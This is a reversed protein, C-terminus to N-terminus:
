KAPRVGLAYHWERILTAFETLEYADPRIFAIPQSQDGSNVPGAQDYVLTNENSFYNSFPKPIEAFILERNEPAQWGESITPLVPLNQAQEVLKRRALGAEQDGKALEAYWLALSACLEGTSILGADWGQLAQGFIQPLQAPSLRKVGLSSLFRQIRKYDFELPDDPSRETTNMERDSDYGYPDVEYSSSSYDSRNSDYGYSDATPAAELSTKTSAYVEELQLVPYYIDQGPYRFVRRFILVGDQGLPTWVVQNPPMYLGNGVPVFAKATLKGDLVERFARGFNDNYYGYDLLIEVLAAEDPYLYHVADLTPGCIFTVLRQTLWQNYPVTWEIQKRSASLYFDAHVAFGLGSGEQTPFHAFFPLPDVRRKLFVDGGGWPLRALPFAIALNVQKLNRWTPDELSAVLEPSDVPCPQRGEVLLWDEQKSEITGTTKSSTKAKSNGITESSSTEDESNSTAESSTAENTAENNTTQRFSLRSVRVQEALSNPRIALEHATKSITAVSRAGTQDVIGINLETIYPLFLLTHSTLLQQCAERVEEYLHSTRKL